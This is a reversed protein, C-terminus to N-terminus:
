ETEKSEEPEEFMDDLDNSDLLNDLSLEENYEM